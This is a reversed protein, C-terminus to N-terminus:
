FPIENGDADTFKLEGTKVNAFASMQCEDCILYYTEEDHDDIKMLKGCKPCNIKHPNVSSKKTDDKEPLEEAFAKLVEVRGNYQPDRGGLNENPFYPVNIPILTNGVKVYFNTYPKQEKTDKKIYTGNKQYLKIEM